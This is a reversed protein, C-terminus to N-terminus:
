WSNEVSTTGNHFEEERVVRVLAESADLTTMAVELRDSYVESNALFRELACSGVELHVLACRDDAVHVFTDRAAAALSGAVLDLAYASERGCVTAETSDHTSCELFRERLALAYVAALANCDARCTSERLVWVDVLYDSSEVVWGLGNDNLWSRSDADSETLFEAALRASVNGAFHSCCEAGDSEVVYEIGVESGVESDHLFTCLEEAADAFVEVAVLAHFEWQHCRAAWCPDEVHLFM